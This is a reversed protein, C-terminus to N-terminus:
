PFTILRNGEGQALFVSERMLDRCAFDSGSVNTKDGESKVTLYDQYIEGSGADPLQEACGASVAASTSLKVASLKQM